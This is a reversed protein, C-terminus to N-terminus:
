REKKISVSMGDGDELFLTDLGPDHALVHLYERMRAHITRDRRRVAYRSRLIDGDQLINDSILIGRPELLRMVDPLFNLYQGKAADMFIFPYSGDMDKLIETADGELLEISGAAGYKEFNERAKPIRKEYKEITTIHAKRESAEWMVLASYGTGSGIELIKEPKKTRIFFRLLAAASSRIVPVDSSVAEDRIDLLMDPVDEAIGEFFIAAADKRM